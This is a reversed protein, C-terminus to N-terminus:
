DLRGPEVSGGSSQDPHPHGLMAERPILNSDAHLKIPSDSARDLALCGPSPGREAERWRQFGLYIETQGHKQKEMQLPSVGGLELIIILICNTSKHLNRPVIGPM